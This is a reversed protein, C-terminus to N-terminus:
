LSTKTAIMKSDIDTNIHPNFRDEFNPQSNELVDIMYSTSPLSAKLSIFFTECLVM